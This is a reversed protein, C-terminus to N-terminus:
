VDELRDELADIMRLLQAARTEAATMQRRAHAVADADARSEQLELEFRAKSAARSAAAYRRQVRELQEDLSCEAVDTTEHFEAPVYAGRAYQHSNPERVIREKRLPPARRTSV